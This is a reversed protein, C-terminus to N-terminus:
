DDYRIKRTIVVCHENDNKSKVVCKIWNGQEDYKYKSFTIVDKDENDTHTIKSVDGNKNYEFVFKVIAGGRAYWRFSGVQIKNIYDIERISEEVDIDEQCFTVSSILGYDNYKYKVTWNGDDRKAKKSILQKEDYTYKFKIPSDGSDPRWIEGVKMNDDESYTIAFRGYNSIKTINGNEDFKLDLSTVMGILAGAINWDTHYSILLKNSSKKREENLEENEDEVRFLNHQLSMVKGKLNLKALDNNVKTGSRCSVLCIAAIGALIIM